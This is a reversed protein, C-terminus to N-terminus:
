SLEWRWHRKCDEEVMQLGATEAIREAARNGPATEATILTLRMARRVWGFFTQLVEDAAGTGWLKKVLEIGIEGAGPAFGETRLGVNGLYIPQAGKSIALQVNKRPQETQWALFLNFVTEAHGERREADTHFRAFAPDAHCELFPARDSECFERLIFRRTELRIPLNM